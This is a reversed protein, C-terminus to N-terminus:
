LVISLFSGKKGPSKLKQVLELANRVNREIKDWEQAVVAERPFLPDGLRVALAGSHIWTRLSAETLEVGGSPVFHVDSYEMVARRLFDPGLVNGPIIMVISAGLERAERIDTQTSCGPMWLVNLRHCVDAMDKRLFPSAIFQAGAQIYRETMPADLVTGVGLILDPMNATEEVLWSFIRLGRNDRQHLFEFVRAGCRYATRIAQLITNVETHYFVPIVGVNKIVNIVDKPPACPLPM